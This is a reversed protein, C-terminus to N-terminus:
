RQVEALRQSLTGGRRQVPLVPAVPASEIRRLELCLGCLVVRELSISRVHALGAPITSQCDHCNRNM